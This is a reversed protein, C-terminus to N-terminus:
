VSHCLVTSNARPRRALRNDRGPGPYLQPDPAGPWHAPGTEQGGDGQGVARSREPQPKCVCCKYSTPRLKERRGVSLGLMQSCPTPSITAFTPARTEGCASQQAWEPQGCRVTPATPRMQWLTPKVWCRCRPDHPCGQSLGCSEMGRGRESNRALTEPGGCTCTHTCTPERTHQTRAPMRTYSHTQAGSGMQPLLETVQVSCLVAEM